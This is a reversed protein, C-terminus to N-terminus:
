KEPVVYRIVNRREPKLYKRAVRRIDERTVQMYKEIETNALSADNYFVAYTALKQAKGLVSSFGSIFQSETQNRVKQFEEETVGDKQLREIEENVVKEISDLSSGQNGIVFFAFMGAKDLSMPFSAAQLAMQEKDVLRRYLRSSQGTSFIKSLFNLAYSDPNHQDVTAYSVVLAPLPTKEEKVTLRRENKQEPIVVVPRDPEAGAPIDGFYEGIWKRAQDVDINGAVVLCANNPIYYKDHFARFEDITAEDIYQASGAPMWEYQTGKFTLRFLNEGLTGYPQNKIRQNLEEKVVKRQTEVGLSDIKLHLLRESEIWLALKLQNSPLLFHYGTQDFSTSANLRGGAGTIIKDITGREINESGEFMLHEFFHAFGTRDPKEDKSGVKYLLYTAVVPASRDVHLIVHLGNDLDYEQFTIPKFDQGVAIGTVLVLFLTTLRRMM